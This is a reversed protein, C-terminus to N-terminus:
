GYFEERGAFVNVHVKPRSYNGGYAMLLLSFTLCQVRIVYNSLTITANLTIDM